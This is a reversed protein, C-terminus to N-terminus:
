LWFRLGIEIPFYWFFKTDGGYSKKEGSSNYSEYEGNIVIGFGPAIGVWMDLLKRPHFHLALPIRAGFDYNSFSVTEKDLSEDYGDHKRMQYDFFGGVGFHWGTKPTFDNDIIYFDGTFGVKFYKGGCANIGWYVPVKPIVFSLGGGFTGRYFCLSGFGGIAFGDPHEAFASGISLFAILSFLLLSKKM